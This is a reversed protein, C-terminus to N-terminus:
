LLVNWEILTGGLPVEYANVVPQQDPRYIVEGCRSLIRLRGERCHSVFDRMQALGTGRHEEGTSTMSEEVAAFIAHGDSKTDTVPPMIGVLRQLRRVWGEARSWGPLSVPITIGRDFVAATTRRLERDVAGTMWWRNAGSLNRVADAPYAHSVVNGVAEIMAGYLRVLGDERSDDQEPYLSRLGDLLEAIQNPDATDGSRMPLIILSATPDPAKVEGEFGVRDFFGVEYLADVVEPKWNEINAVFPKIGCLLGVREYEAALALAAAPTIRELTEFSRYRGLRRISGARHKSPAGYRRTGTVRMQSVRYLDDLIALTETPNDDFCVVPPM